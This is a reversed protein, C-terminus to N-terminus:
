AVAHLMRRGALSRAAAQRDFVFEFSDGPRITTRASQGLLDISMIWTKHDESELFIQSLYLDMPSRNMVSIYAVEKPQFVPPNAFSRLEGGTISVLVDPTPLTLKEAAAPTSHRAHLGSIVKTLNLIVDTRLRETSPFFSVIGDRMLLDRFQHLSR